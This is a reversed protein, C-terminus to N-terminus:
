YKLKSDTQLDISDSVSLMSEKCFPSFIWRDIKAVFLESNLLLIFNGIDMGYTSMLM